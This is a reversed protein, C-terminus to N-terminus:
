FFVNLGSMSITAADVTFARFQLNHISCIRCTPVAELPIIAAVMHKIMVMKGDTLTARNPM